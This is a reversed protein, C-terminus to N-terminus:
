SNCWKQQLWIKLSNRLGECNIRGSSSPRSALQSPEINILSKVAFKVTEASKQLIIPLYFVMGM